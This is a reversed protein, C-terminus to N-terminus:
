SISKRGDEIYAITKQVVELVESEKLKEGIEYGAKKIANSIKISDFLVERGDRKVVYLM